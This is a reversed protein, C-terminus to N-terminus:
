LLEPNTTEIKSVLNKVKESSELPMILICDETEIVCINKMDILAVKKNSKVFSNESDVCFLKNSSKNGQFDSPYFHSVSQWSGVDNWNMDSEIVICHPTKEMIAIDIPQKSLMSYVLSIDKINLYDAILNYLDPTYSKFASTIATISWMFIGSNWLFNGTSLFDRATDINPKEKFQKVHFMIDDIADGKEIYGYGTSPYTPKIGFTILSTENLVKNAKKVINIFAGEDEIVHDAPCALVVDDETYRTKLYAISLALCPATNMPFPEIIIQEKALEPLHEFILGIQEKTTVVYIDEKNILSNLREFTMRIMSKNGILQLYQKPRAKRSEPWFRTGSGGAMILAIIKM